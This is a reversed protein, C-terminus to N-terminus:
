NACEREDHVHMCAQMFVCSWFGVFFIPIELVQVLPQHRIQGIPKAKKKKKEFRAKGTVRISIKLRYPM